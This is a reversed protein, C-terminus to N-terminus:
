QPRREEPKQEQPHQQPRSEPKARSRDRSLGSSLDPRQSLSWPGLSSRSRSTSRGPNPGIGRSRPLDPSRVTPPQPTPRAEARNPQYAPRAEPRNEPAPRTEPPEAASNATSGSLQNTLRPWTLM